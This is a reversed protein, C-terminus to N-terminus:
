LTAMFKQAQAKPYLEDKVVTKSEKHIVGWKKTPSIWKIEHTPSESKRETATYIQSWREAMEIGTESIFMVRLSAEWLGDECMCEVIDGPKMNSVYHKWFEPKMVDKLYCGAPIDAYYETRKHEASVLRGYHLAGDM